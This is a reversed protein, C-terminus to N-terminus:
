RRFLESAVFGLMIIEGAVTFLLVIIKAPITVDYRTKWTFIGFPLWGFVLGSVGWKWAVEFGLRYRLSWYFLGIAAIGHFIVLVVLAEM